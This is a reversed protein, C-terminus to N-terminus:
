HSVDPDRATRPTLSAVRKRALQSIAAAPVAAMLLVMSTSVSWDSICVHNLVMVLGSLGVGVGAVIVSAGELGFVSLPWVGVGRFRRFLFAFEGELLIIAEYRWNLSCGRLGALRWGVGPAALRTGTGESNVGVERDFEFLGGEAGLVRFGEDAGEGLLSFSDWGEILEDRAVDVLGEM